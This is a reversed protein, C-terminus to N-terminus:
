IIRHTEIFYVEGKVMESIKVSDQSDKLKETITNEKGIKVPVKFSKNIDKLTGTVLSVSRSDHRKDKGNIKKSSDFSNPANTDAFVQRSELELVRKELKEILEKNKM